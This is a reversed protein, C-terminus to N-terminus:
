SKMPRLKDIVHKDGAVHISAMTDWGLKLPASRKSQSEVHMVTDPQLDEIPETIICKVSEEDNGWSPGNDDINFLAKNPNM